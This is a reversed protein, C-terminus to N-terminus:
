DGGADPGEGEGYALWGPAVDLAVALDEITSIRPESEGKEILLITQRSVGAADEVQRLTLGRLERTSALRLAVGRWRESAPRSDPQPIPPDAPLPPRPRKQKFRLTGEEGYALWTPSIGLAESIRELTGVRPVHKGDEILLMTRSNLGVLSALDLRTMGAADIRGRVRHACRFHLPNKQGSVVYVALAGDASSALVLAEHQPRLISSPEQSLM